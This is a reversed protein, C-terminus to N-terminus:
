RTKQEGRWPSSSHSVARKLILCFLCWGGEVVVVVKKEDKLRRRFVNM